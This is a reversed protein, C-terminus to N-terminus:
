LTWGPETETLVYEDVRKKVRDNVLEEESGTLVTESEIMGTDFIVNGDADMYLDKVVFCGCADDAFQQGRSMTPGNEVDVTYTIYLYNHTRGFFTNPLGDKLTLFYAKVYKFDSTVTSKYFNINDGSIQVYHGWDSPNDIEATKYDDCEAKIQNWTDEDIEDPSTLYAAAKQCTVEKVSSTLVYGQETLQYPLAATIEVQDGKKVHGSNKSTVSYAVQSLINGPPLTNRIQVSLDPSTGTYEIYIGEGSEVDFVVPDFPDVEISETLGSVKFELNKGRTLVVDYKKFLDKDYTLNIRVTDGNSLGNLPEATGDIEDAQLEFALDDILSKGKGSCQEALYDYDIDWTCRGQGDLGDFEVSVAKDLNVKKSGCGTQFISVALFICVVAFGRIVAGNLVREKM